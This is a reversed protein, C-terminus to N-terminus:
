VEIFGSTVNLISPIGHFLIFDCIPRTPQKFFNRVFVLLESSYPLKPDSAFSLFPVRSKRSNIILWILVLTAFHGSSLMDAAMLIVPSNDVM